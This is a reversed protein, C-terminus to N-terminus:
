TQGKKKAASSVPAVVEGSSVSTICDWDFAAIVPQFTRDVTIVAVNYAQRERVAAEVNNRARWRCGDVV